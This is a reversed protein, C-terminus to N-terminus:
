ARLKSEPLLIQWAEELDKELLRAAYLAIFTFRQLQRTQDFSDQASSARLQQQVKKAQASPLLGNPQMPSYGTVRTQDSFDLLELRDQLGYSFCFDRYMGYLEGGPKGDICIFTASPDLLLPMGIQNLAQTKGSGTPGLIHLHSLSFTERTLGIPDGTDDEQGLYLLGDRRWLSGRERPTMTFAM